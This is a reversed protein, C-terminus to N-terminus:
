VTIVVLAGATSFVCFVGKELIAWWFHSFNFIDVTRYTGLRYGSIWSTAFHDEGLMQAARAVPHVVLKAKGAKRALSKLISKSNSLCPVEGWYWFLYKSRTTQYLIQWVWGFWICITFRCHQRHVAEEIKILRLMRPNTIKRSRSDLLFVWM